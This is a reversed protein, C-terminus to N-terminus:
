GVVLHIKKIARMSISFDLEWFSHTVYNTNPQPHTQAQTQTQTQKVLFFYKTNTWFGPM